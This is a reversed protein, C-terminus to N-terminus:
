PADEPACSSVLDVAESPVQPIPDADRVFLGGHWHCLVFLARVANDEVPARLGPYEDAPRMFGFAPLDLMRGNLKRVGVAIADKLVEIPRDRLALLV